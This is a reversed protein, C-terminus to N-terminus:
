GTGRDAAGRGGVLGRLARRAWFGVLRPLLFGLAALGAALGFPWLDLAAMLGAIEGHRLADILTKAVAVAPPVRVLLAQGARIQRYGAAIRKQALAMAASHDRLARDLVEAELGKRVKLQIDGDLQVISWVPPDPEGAAASPRPVVMGGALLEAFTDVTRRWAPPSLANLWPDLGSAAPAGSPVATPASSGSM